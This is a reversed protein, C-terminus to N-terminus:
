AFRNVEAQRTTTRTRFGLSGSSSAEDSQEMKRNIVTACMGQEVAVVPPLASIRSFGIKASRRRLVLNDEGMEM